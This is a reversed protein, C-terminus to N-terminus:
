LPRNDEGLITIRPSYGELEEKELLTYSAIILLDGVEAKRAAAGNLVVEYGNEEGPIIYTSFREGNTINYVEIKEYPYMGSASLLAKGLTLSGEYELNKGTVRARHIKCRLVQVKV